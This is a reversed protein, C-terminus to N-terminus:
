SITIRRLHSRNFRPGALTPKTLSAGHAAAAEKARLCAPIGAKKPDHGKISFGASGKCHTGIESEHILEGINNFGVLTKLSSSLRRQANPWLMISVEYASVGVPQTKSM